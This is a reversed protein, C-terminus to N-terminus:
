DLFEGSHISGWPEDGCEYSEGVQGFESGYWYDMEGDWKKFIWKITIRRDVGPDELHNRESM